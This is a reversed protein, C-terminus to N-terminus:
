KWLDEKQLTPIEVCTERGDKDKIHSIYETDRSGSCVTGISDVAGVGHTKEYTELLNIIERTSATKM